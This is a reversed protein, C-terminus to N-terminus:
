CRQNRILFFPLSHNIRLPSRKEPHTAKYYKYSLYGGYIFLLIIIIWAWLPLKNILNASPPESASEPCPCSSDAYVDNPYCGRYEGYATDYYPNCPVTNPQCTGQNCISSQCDFSISCDKYDACPSCFFGGCDVDTEQGNKIDDTCSPPTGYCAGDKCGEYGLGVCNYDQYNVDYFSSNQLYNCFYERVICDENSCEDVPTPGNYCQDWVNQYDNPGPFSVYSYTVNGFDDQIIGNDTDQCYFVSSAVTGSDASVFSLLPILFLVFTLFKWRM